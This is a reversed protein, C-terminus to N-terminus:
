AKLDRGINFEKWGDRTTRQEVKALKCWADPHAKSAWKEVEDQQIQGKTANYMIGLRDLVNAVWDM